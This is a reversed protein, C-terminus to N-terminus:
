GQQRLEEFPRHDPTPSADMALLHQIKALDQQVRVKVVPDLGPNALQAKLAAVQAQYETRKADSLRFYPTPAAFTAQVAPGTRIHKVIEGGSGDPRRPTLGVSTVVRGQLLDAGRAAHIAVEVRGPTVGVGERRMARVAENVLAFETERTM